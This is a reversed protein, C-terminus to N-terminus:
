PKAILEKIPNAQIEKPKAEKTESAFDLGESARRDIRIVTKESLVAINIPRGKPFCWMYVASLGFFVQSPNRPPTNTPANTKM